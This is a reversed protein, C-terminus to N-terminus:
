INFVLTEMNLSQNPKGKEPWTIIIVIDKLNPSTTNVYVNYIFNQMYVAGNRYGSYLYSGSYGAISPFYANNITELEKNMVSSAIEINEAQHVATSATPFISVIFLVCFALFFISILTEILTYGPM